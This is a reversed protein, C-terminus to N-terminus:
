KWLLVQKNGGSLLIIAQQQTTDVRQIMQPYQKLYWNVPQATVWSRFSITDGNKYNKKVLEAAHTTGDGNWHEDQKLEIHGAANRAFSFRFDSVYALCTYGMRAILVIMCITSIKRVISRPNSHSAAFCVGTLGLSFPLCFIWYRAHLIVMTHTIIIPVLSLVTYASIGFLFFYITRKGYLAIANKINLVIVTLPFIILLISILSKLNIESSTSNGFSTTYRCLLAWVVTAPTAPTFNPVPMNSAIRNMEIVNRISKIANLPFLYVLILVTFPVLVAVLTRLWFQRSVGRSTIIFDALLALLVIVTFYHTILMLAAIVGMWIGNRLLRGSQRNAIASQINDYLILLIMLLVLAFAYMRAFHAVQVVLAHLVFMVTAINAVREDAARRRLWVYFLVIAILVFLASPERMAAVSFGRINIWWHIILNSTFSHGCDDITFRMTRQASNRKWYDASTFVPGQIHEYNSFGDFAHTRIYGFGTAINATVIEDGDLPIRDLHYFCIGTSLLLLLLLFRYKKLFLVTSAM